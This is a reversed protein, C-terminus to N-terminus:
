GGFSDFYYSKNDKRIFCCWHSGGNEYNGINIFGKDSYIKSDRPYIPYNYIKQLESENMTDNKLKYIKMFEKFILVEM